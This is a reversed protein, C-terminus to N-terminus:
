RAPSCTMSLAACIRPMGDIVRLAVLVLQVENRRADQVAARLADDAIADDDMQRAEKLLEGREVTLYTGRQPAPVRLNGLLHKCSMTAWAICCLDADRTYLQAAYLLASCKRVACLTDTVTCSGRHTWSRKSTHKNRTQLEHKVANSSCQSDRLTNVNVAPQQDAVAGVQQEVQM